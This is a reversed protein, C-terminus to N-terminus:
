PAARTYRTEGLRPHSGQALTEATAPDLGTHLTDAQAGVGATIRRPRSHKTDHSSGLTWRIETTGDM